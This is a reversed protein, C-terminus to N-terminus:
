LALIEFCGGYSVLNQLWYIYMRFFMTFFQSNCLGRAVLSLIQNLSLTFKMSPSTLYVVYRYFIACHSFVLNYVEEMISFNLAVVVLLACHLHSLHRARPSYSHIANVACGKERPM